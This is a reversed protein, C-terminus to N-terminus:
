EEIGEAKLMEYYQNFVKDIVKDDETVVLVEEDDVEEINFVLAEDDKMGEFAEIPRLIAYVKEDMPIVAIQEFEVGDGNEDYLTINDSNNEDLLLDIPSVEKESM